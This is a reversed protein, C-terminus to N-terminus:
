ELWRKKPRDYCWHMYEYLASISIRPWSHLGLFRRNNADVLWGFHLADQAAAGQLACVEGADAHQDFGDFSKDGTIISDSRPGM